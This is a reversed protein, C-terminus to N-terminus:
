FEDNAMDDDRLLHRVQAAAADEYVIDVAQGALARLQARSPPLWARFVIRNGNEIEVTTGRRASPRERIALAYGPLNPKDSWLAAFTAHFEQGAVTVTQNVLLSDIADREPDPVRAEGFGAMLLLSLFLPFPLKRAMMM